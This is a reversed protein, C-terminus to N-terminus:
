LCIRVGDVHVVVVTVPCSKRDVSVKIHTPIYKKGLNRVQEKRRSSFTSISQPM